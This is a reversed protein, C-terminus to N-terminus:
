LGLGDLLGQAFALKSLRGFTRIRVVREIMQGHPNKRIEHEVTQWGENRPSLPTDKDKQGRSVEAAEAFTSSKRM